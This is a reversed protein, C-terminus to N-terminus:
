MCAGTFLPGIQVSVTTAVEVAEGDVLYPKFTWKKVADLAGPQLMAPGSAVSLHEVHGEPGILVNLVVTGQVHAACAIPAYVPKPHNLILEKTVSEALDIRKAPVTADAPPTFEAEDVTKIEELADLHLTLSNRPKADSSVPWHSEVDKAVYHGQFRIIQNWFTQSGMPNILSIRLAPLGSDLCYTAGAAKASKVSGIIETLCVLEATGLKKQALQVSSVDGGVPTLLQIPHLLPNILNNYRDPATDRLGTRFIGKDTTYETQTVNASTIMRKSKQPGAWFEEYTGEDTPKGDWDFLKFSAKLHWPKLDDGALGNTKAALQLLEKSDAPLAPAAQAVTPQGMAPLAAFCTTLIFLLGLSSRLARVFNLKRMGVLYWQPDIPNGFPRCAGTQQYKAVFGLSDLFSQADGSRFGTCLRHM